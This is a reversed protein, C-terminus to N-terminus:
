FNLKEKMLNIVNSITDNVIEISFSEAICEFTSDHFSLVFHKLDNFYTENHYPHVSNMEILNRLWSSNEIIFASYPRLGKTYLPHGSFAEDNPPGFMTSSCREFSIIAILEFENMYDSENEQIYYSVVTKSEASLVVPIPAGVSSQPMENLEVVTDKSDISYM